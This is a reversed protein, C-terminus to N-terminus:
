QTHEIHYLHTIRVKKDVRKAVIQIKGSLTHMEDNDQSVLMAELDASGKASKGTFEWKM